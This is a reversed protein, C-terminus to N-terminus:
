PRRRETDAAQRLSAGGDTLKVRGRDEGHNRTREHVAGGLWFKAVCDVMEPSSLYGYWHHPDRDGTPGYNDRVMRDDVLHGGTATPYNDAIGRDRIAVDDVRDFLNLWYRLNPPFAPTGLAARVYEWGLPTGLTVFTDVDGSFHLVADFAVVTGMSHSVVCLPGFRREEELRKVVRELIPGRTRGDLYPRMDRMLHDFVVSLPARTAAEARSLLLGSMRRVRELANLVLLDPRTRYAALGGVAWGLSARQRVPLRRLLAIEAADPARGTAFRLDAWYAVSYADYPVDLWLARSLPAWTRAREAETAPKDGMGHVFVIRRDM